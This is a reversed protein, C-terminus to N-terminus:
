RYRKGRNSDVQLVRKGTKYAFAKKITGESVETKVM